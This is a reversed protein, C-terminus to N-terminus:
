TFFLMRFHLNQMGSHQQEKITKNQIEQPQTISPFLRKSCVTTTNRAGNTALTRKKPLYRKTLRLVELLEEISAPLVFVDAKGGIRFTTHRAMPEDTLVHEEPLVERLAKIYNGDITYGM